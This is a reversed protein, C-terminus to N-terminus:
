CPRVVPAPTVVPELALLAGYESGSGIMRSAPLTPSQSPLPDRMRRGVGPGIGPLGVFGNDSRVAGVAM